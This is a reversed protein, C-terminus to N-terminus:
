AKKNKIKRIIVNIILLIVAVALLLLAALVGFRTLVIASAGLLGAILYLISVAQKQNFGMDILRHHLHGRDPTM